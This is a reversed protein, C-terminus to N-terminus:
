TTWDDFTIDGVIPYENEFIPIDGSDSKTRYNDTYITITTLDINDVGPTNKLLGVIDALEVYDGSFANLQEAFNISFVNDVSAKDYGINFKIRVYLHIKVQSKEILLYDRNDYLNEPANLFSEINHLLKNYNYRIELSDGAIFPGLEDYGEPTLALRDYGRTSNRLIGTDKVLWYYRRDITIGNKIFIVLDLVPQKSLTISTPTYKIEPNAGTLGSETVILRDESGEIIQGKVYIDIGGGLGGTRTMLLDNSGVLTVSTAFNEVARIIGPTNSLSRGKYKQKVLQLRQTISGGDEGRTIPSRNTCGDIGSISQGFRTISNSPTNGSTGATVCRIQVTIEYRNANANFYNHALDKPITYFGMVRYSVTGDTKLFTHTTDIVIDKTPKSFAYLTLEGYAFTAPIDGVQHNRCYRDKDIELLDNEYLLPSQLKQLYDLSNWIEILQGEIPAEIFIDREVSGETAVDLDILNSYTALLTNRLDARTKIDM